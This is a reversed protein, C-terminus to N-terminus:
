TKGGTTWRFPNITQNRGRADQPVVRCNKVTERQWGLGKGWFVDVYVEVWPALSGDDLWELTAGPIVRINGAKRMGSISDYAIPVASLDDGFSYVRAQANLSGPPVLRFEAM